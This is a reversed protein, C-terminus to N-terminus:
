QQIYIIARRGSWAYYAQGSYPSAAEIVEEQNLGSIRMWDASAVIETLLYASEVLELGEEDVAMPLMFAMKDKVFVKYHPFIQAIEFLLAPTIDEEKESFVRALEEENQYAFGFSKGSLNLRIFPKEEAFSPQDSFLQLQKSLDLYYDTAAQPSTKQYIEAFYANIVSPPPTIFALKQEETLDLLKRSLYVKDLSTFGGYKLALDIYDM